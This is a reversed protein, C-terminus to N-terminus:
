PKSYDSDTDGEIEPLGLQARTCQKIPIEEFKIGHNNDNDWTKYFGKLRGYSADDISEEVDDYATIGFAIMFGDETTLEFDSDFYSDRVSVM